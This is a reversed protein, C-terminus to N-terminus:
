LALASMVGISLLGNLFAFLALVHVRSHHRMLMPLQVREFIGRVIDSMEGGIPHERDISYRSSARPQRDDGPMTAMVARIHDPEGGFYKTIGLMLAAQFSVARKPVLTTSFPLLLRLAHTRLEHGTVLTVTQERHIGLDRQPCWRYVPLGFTSETVFTHCKVPEFAGSIGDNETKYDGSIVWVEGNLEVRVQSSGVIHGAPHLSVKVGNIHIPENCGITQYDNEGLRLQLIPKTFHHCLYSKNGLRAHDSHGHTIIAKDVPKWPDIYFNGASCYLGKDTFDILLPEKNKLRSVAASRVVGGAPINTERRM